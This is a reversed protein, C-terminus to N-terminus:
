RSRRRVWIERQMTKPNEGRDDVIRITIRFASPVYAAKYYIGSQTKGSWETTDVDEEFELFGQFNARITYDGSPFRTLKSANGASGAGAGQSIEGRESATFIFIRDGPILEAFFVQPNGRFGVRLPRPNSLGWLGDDSRLGPEAIALSYNQGLKV